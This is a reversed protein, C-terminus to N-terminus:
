PNVTMEVTLPYPASPPTPLSAASFQEAFCKSTETAPQVEIASVIGNSSVTGVLAFKGLHGSSGPPVCKLMASQVASGLSADYAKGAPTAIAANGAKVRGSFDEAVAACATLSLLLCMVVKM